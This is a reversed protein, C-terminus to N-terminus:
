KDRKLLQKEFAVDLKSIRRPIQPGYANVFKVFADLELPESVRIPLADGANQALIFLESATRIMSYRHDTSRANLREIAYTARTSRM